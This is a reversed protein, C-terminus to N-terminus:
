GILIGDSSLCSACSIGLGAQLRREITLRVAGHSRLRRQLLRDARVRVGDDGLGGARVLQGEVQIASPEPVSGDGEVRRGSGEGEQRSQGDVLETLVEPRRGSAITTM